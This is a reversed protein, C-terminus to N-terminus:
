NSELKLSRKGFYKEWRSLNVSEKEITRIHEEIKQVYPNVGNPWPQALFRFLGHCEKDLKPIVLKEWFIPTGRFLEETNKFMRNDKPINRYNDSEEFELFLNPLKHLYDPDSMQGLYDASCVSEGIIKELPNHFPIADIISRPGTCSILHQVTTIDKKQWEKQSLYYDALECSRKEHVFTYKAGTGEDDGKAKLFGVYHLMVAFLGIEFDRSTMIPKAKLLTRNAIMRTWCLTVQLTHELDHYLTDMAQYDWFNGAFIESVDEFLQSIAATDAEPFVENQIKLVAKTVERFDHTNLEELTYKLTM